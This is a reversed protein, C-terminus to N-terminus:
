QQGIIATNMVTQGMRRKIVFLFIIDGHGPGYLIARKLFHTVAQGQHAGSRTLGPNASKRGSPKPYNQPFSFVPLDASHDALDAILDGPQLAFSKGTDLQTVQCGALPAM